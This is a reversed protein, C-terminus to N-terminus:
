ITLGLAIGFRVLLTPSNILTFAANSTNIGVPTGFSIYGDSTIFRWSSQHGFTVGTTAYGANQAPFDCDGRECAQLTGVRLFGGMYSGKPIQRYAKFYLKITMTGNLELSPNNGPIGYHEAYWANPNYRFHQGEFQLAALRMVRYEVFINYSNHILTLMGLRVAFRHEMTDSHLTRYLFGRPISDIDSAVYGTESETSQAVSTAQFGCLAIMVAFLVGVFHKMATFKADTAVSHGKREM